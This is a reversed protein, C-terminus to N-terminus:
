TKPPATDVLAGGTLRLVRTCRQSLQMDHAVVVVATGTRSAILLSEFVLHSNDEDLNGTPEDALILPAKLAMARAIAVRQLEGGSLYRVLKTSLHGIQLADLTEAATSRARLASMRRLLPVAVNDLASRARLGDPVQQVMAIAEIPAGRTVRGEQPRLDGRILALLTSKGEGSPGVIAVAEGREVSLSLHRLIPANGYSFSVDDLSLM